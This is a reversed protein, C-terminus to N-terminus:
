AAGAFESLRGLRIESLRKSRRMNRYLKPLDGMPATGLRFVWYAAGSTVMLLRRERLAEMDLLEKIFGYFSAESLYDDDAKELMRVFGSRGTGVIMALPLVVVAFPFVLHSTMLWVYEGVDSVLNPLQAYFTAKDLLTVVIAAIVALLGGLYSAFNGAGPLGFFGRAKKVIPDGAKAEIASHWEWKEILSRALAEYDTHEGFLQAVTARRDRERSMLATRLKPEAAGPKARLYRQRSAEVILQGFGFALPLEFVMVVWPLHSYIHVRYGIGAIVSLGVAAIMLLALFSVLLFIRTSLVYRPILRFQRRYTKVKHSISRM